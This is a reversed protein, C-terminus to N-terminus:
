MVKQKRESKTIVINYKIFDEDKKIEEIDEIFKNNKNLENKERGFLMNINDELLIYWLTGNYQPITGYKEIKTNAEQLDFDLYTQKKDKNINLIAMTIDDFSFTNKEEDYVLNLQHGLPEGNYLITCNICYSYIGIKELLLKYYKAIGNCVGIQNNMVTEFEYYPNREYTKSLKMKNFKIKDLLENDYKINNILYNFIIKRKEFQTLEHINNIFIENIKNTIKKDIEKYNGFEM